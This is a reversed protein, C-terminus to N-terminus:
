SAKTTLFSSSITSLPPSGGYLPMSSKSTEKWEYFFMKENDMTKTPPGFELVVDSKATTGDVVSKQVKAADISAGQKVKQFGCASLAVVLCLGLILWRYRTM